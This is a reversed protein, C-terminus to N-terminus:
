MTTLDIANQIMEETWDIQASPYITRLANSMQALYAELQSRDFRTVYSGTYLQTKLISRAFDAMNIFDNADAFPLTQQMNAYVRHLREAMFVGMNYAPNVPIKNASHIFLLVVLEVLLKKVADQTETDLSANMTAHPRYVDIDKPYDPISTWDEVKEYGCLSFDSAYLQNITQTAAQHAYFERYIPVSTIIFPAKSSMNIMPYTSMDVDVHYTNQVWYPIDDHMCEFRIMNVTQGGIFEAMPRLINRYVPDTKDDKEFLPKVFDVLFATYGEAHIPYTCMAMPYERHMRFFLSVLRDYPNRVITMIEYGTLDGKEELTMFGRYGSTHYNPVISQLYTKLSMGGTGPIHVFCVRNNIDIFM